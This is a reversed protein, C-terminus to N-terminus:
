EVGMAKLLYPWYEAILFIVVFALILAILGAIKQARTSGTTNKYNGNRFSGKILSGPAYVEKERSGDVKGFMDKLEEKEPDYYRPRYNFTRHEPTGFFGFNFGM